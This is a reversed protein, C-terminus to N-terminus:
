RFGGMGHCGITMAYISAPAFTKMDNLISTIGEATTFSPNTYSKLTKRECKGNKYVIEFMSAETSSSSMFVVVKENKLGRKKICEEMDSINTYFNTTLNSSWPLYMFLTKRSTTVIDPEDKECSFLFFSLVAWCLIKIEGYRMNM